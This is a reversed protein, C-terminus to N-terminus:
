AAIVEKGEPEEVVPTAVRTVGSVVTATRWAARLAADHRLDASLFSELIRVQRMGEATADKVASTAASRRVREQDRADSAERLARAAAQLREVHGKGLGAAEFQAEHALVLRAMAEASNLLQERRQVRPTRLAARVAEGAAGDTSLIAKGVRSVRRLFDEHLERALVHARRTEVRTLQAQHEQRTAVETLRTIVDDLRKYHLAAEDALSRSKLFDRVRRFMQLRQMEKSRMATGEM